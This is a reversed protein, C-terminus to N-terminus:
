AHEELPEYDPLRGAIVERLQRAQHDMFERYTQTHADPPTFTTTLLRRDFEDLFRGRVERSMYCGGNEFSFGAPSVEGRHILAWVMRDVLHRFEEVLDSALAAHTGHSEHLLGLRPNLRPDLRRKLRPDLRPDLKPNLRLDLKPNLKPNLRLDLRPNLGM